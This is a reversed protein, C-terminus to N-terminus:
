YMGPEHEDQSHLEEDEKVRKMKRKKIREEKM